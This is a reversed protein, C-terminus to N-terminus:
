EVALIPLCRVINNVWATFREANLEGRITRPDALTWGTPTEGEMMFAVDGPIKGNSPKYYLWGSGSGCNARFGALYEERAKIVLRDIFAQSNKLSKDLSM